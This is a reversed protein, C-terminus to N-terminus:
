GIWRTDGKMGTDRREQLKKCNYEWVEDLTFGKEVITAVLYWLVDGLESLWREDDKRNNRLVEKKALGAVEGAEENLGLAAHVIDIPCGIQSFWGSNELQCKINDTLQQLTM